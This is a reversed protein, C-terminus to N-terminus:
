SRAEWGDAGPTIGWEALDTMRFDAESDAEAWALMFSQATEFDGGLDVLRAIANAERYTLAKAFGISDLNAQVVETLGDIAKDINRLHSM